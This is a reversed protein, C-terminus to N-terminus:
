TGAETAMRGDLPCPNGNGTLKGGLGVMDLTPRDGIGVAVLAVPFSIDIPLCGAIVLLSGSRRNVEYNPVTCSTRGRVCQSCRSYFIGGVSCPSLYGFDVILAEAAM